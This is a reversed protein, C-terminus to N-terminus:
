SSLNIWRPSWTAEHEEPLGAEFLLRRLQVLGIVEGPDQIVVSSLGQIGAV